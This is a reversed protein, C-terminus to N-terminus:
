AISHLAKQTKGNQQWRFIRTTWHFSSRCHSDQRLQVLVYWRVALRVPRSAPSPRFLRIHLYPSAASTLVRTVCNIQRYLAEPLQRRSSSVRGYTATTAASALPLRLLLDPPRSKGRTIASTIKRIKKAQPRIFAECTHVLLLFTMMSCKCTNRVSAKTLRLSQESLFHTDISASTTFFFLM